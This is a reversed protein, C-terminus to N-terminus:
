EFILNQKNKLSSVNVDYATVIQPIQNLTKLTKAKAFACGDEVIKVFYDVQQMEPIFYATRISSETEFLGTAATVIEQGKMKNSFLYYDIYQHDDNYEFYPYNLPHVGEDLVLDRNSRSLRLNLHKNLLFAIYYPELSAHVAILTFDYGISDELLIKYAGM